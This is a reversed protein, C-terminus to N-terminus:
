EEDDQEDGDEAPAAAAEPAALQRVETLETGPFAEMVARVFPDALAEERAKNKERRTRELLTEAGGSGEAAVLWPAGTWEKLRGVLRQALHAPAGPAPE